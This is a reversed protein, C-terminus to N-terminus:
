APQGISPAHAPEAPSTGCVEAHLEDLAQEIGEMLPWVDDM